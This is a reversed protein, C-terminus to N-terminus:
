IFLVKMYFNNEQVKFLKFQVYSNKPSAIIKHYKNMKLNSVNLKEFGLVIVCLLQSNIIKLGQKPSIGTNFFSPGDNKNLLM